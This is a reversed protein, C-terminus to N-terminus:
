IEYAIFSNLIGYTLSGKTENYIRFDVFQNASLTVIWSPLSVTGITGNMVFDARNVRENNVFLGVHVIDGEDVQSM